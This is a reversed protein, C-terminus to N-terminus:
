LGLLAYNVKKFLFVETTESISEPFEVINENIKALIGELPICLSKVSNTSEITAVAQGYVVRDGVEVRPIFNWIQGLNVLGESTFGVAAVNESVKEIWFTENLQKM